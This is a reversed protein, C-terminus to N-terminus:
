GRLLQDYRCDTLAVSLVSAAKGTRVFEVEVLKDRLSRLIRQLAAGWQTLAAVQFYSAHLLIQRLHRLMTQMSKARTAWTRRHQDVYFGHVTSIYVAKDTKVKGRREDVLSKEQREVEEVDMFLAETEYLKAISKLDVKAM